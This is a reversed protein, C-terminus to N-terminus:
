GPSARSRRRAAGGRLTCTCCAGAPPRRPNARADPGEGDAGGARERRGSGEDDPAGRVRHGARPRPHQRRVAGARHVARPLHTRRGDAAAAVGGEVRGARRHRRLRAPLQGLRDREPQRRRLDGMRVGPLDADPAGRRSRRRARRRGRASCPEDAAAARGLGHPTEDTSENNVARPAGGGSAAARRAESARRAALTYRPM